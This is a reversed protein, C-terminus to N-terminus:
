KGLKGCLRKGNSDRLEKVYARAYIPVLNYEKLLETEKMFFDECHGSAGFKFYCIFHSLEHLLYYLIYEQKRDMVWLPFTIKYSDYRARGCRTDKFQIEPVEIGEKDAITKAIKRLDEYRYM